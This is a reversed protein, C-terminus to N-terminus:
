GEPPKRLAGPIGDPYMVEAESKRIYSPAGGTTVDVRLGRLALRAVASGLPTARVFDLTALAPHAAAADGIYRTIDGAYAALEGPAFVREEALATGDAAFAGAYVEGKRADLAAVRPGDGVHQTALAALSSVLWLPKGIAFAIGKATAIGIRLGTFSGPGAGCAVATLAKPAIGAETCARDIAVLLASVRGATDHAVEVVLEGDERVLAISAMLTASDIGLIM